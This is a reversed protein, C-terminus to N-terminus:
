VDSDARQMILCFYIYVLVIKLMRKTLPIKKWHSLNINTASFHLSVEKVDVNFDGIISIDEYKNCSEELHSIIQQKYSNYSWYLLWISNKIKIEAFLKENHM